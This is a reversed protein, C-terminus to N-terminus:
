AEMQEPDALLDIGAVKLLAGLRYLPLGMVNFFDGDIRTVFLAAQGQAGYAGAKDMPEGGAIYARIEGDTLQRFYVDSTEADVYERGGRLVAVGSLVQNVNGSLMRLMRQADAEDRPKGLIEDGFVVVTDAAIVVADPYQQAVARGKELAALRVYEAPTAARIAQEDAGSEVVDFETIGIKPLLERRRPSQSALIIREM